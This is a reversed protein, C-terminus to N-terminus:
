SLVCRAEHMGLAMGMCALNEIDLIPRPNYCAYYYVYIYYIYVEETTSFQPLRQGGGTVNQGVRQQRASCTRTHRLRSSTLRPRTSQSNLLNEVSMEPCSRPRLGARPGTASTLRRVEVTIKGHDERRLQTAPHVIKPLLRSAAATAM